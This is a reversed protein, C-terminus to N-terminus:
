TGQRRSPHQSGEPARSQFRQSAEAFDLVANLMDRDISWNKAKASDGGPRGGLMVAVSNFADGVKSRMQRRADRLKPCDVMVHVVTEKAGCECKDDEIFRLVKAHTALWSHGTRLQTLLYARNRSLPGYLRQARKSPLGDDINRLHQGKGTSRWEHQWEEMMNERNTQKMASVLHHFQHEEELSVVDKAVKDAAENGPNGSHGPVWQLRIQIRIERLRQTLDLIRHVIHQGPRTSPNAIAQLASKSDSVITFTRDCTPDGRPNETDEAQAMKVGHYIAILEAAHVSWHKASGIGARWTRQRDNHRDLMVAAAGLTSNKASADTYIVAEPTTLLM